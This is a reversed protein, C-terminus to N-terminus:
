RNLQFLKQLDRCGTKRWLSLRRRGVEVLDLIAERERRPPSSSRWLEELRRRARVEGELSSPDLMALAAAAGLAFRSPVIGQHLVLRMTGILRDNWALKREPDRAVREVTDQLHPNTMRALLDDTFHQFGTPSFLTPDASSHKKVLAAGSEEIFAARLFDLFGPKQRVEAMRQLGSLAALYAALAHAANHGYLKAEEYPVLDEKQEFVGIGPQFDEGALREGFRTKSVFIRNFAEVLFARPDDKTVPALRHDGLQKHQPVIGSMKGIVTNLFQCCSLVARREPKPVEDLVKAQLIEAAQNHNEAAYVVARPGGAAAKKRLGAALLKHVSGLGRSMYHTVSPVATSMEEAEAIADVVISRDHPDAPNQIEIPGVECPCNSDQFAINVSFLGGAGRVASIVEHRHGVVVLRRFANSRFAEYLFLGAQIPGFGFGVFTRTGILAM